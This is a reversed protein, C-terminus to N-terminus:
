KSSKIVENPAEVKQTQQTGNILETYNFSNKATIKPLKVNVKKNINKNNVEFKIDATYIGKLASQSTTKAFAKELKAADIVIEINGKTSIVYGNKDITYAIEIGKNGLIKINDLKDMNKNFADLFKQSQLKTFMQEMQIKTNNIDKTSAGSNKMSTVVYNKILGQIEKNKATINVVKRIVEKFKADDIKVKYVNGDKTVVGKLNLQSSYKQTITLILKQLEKNGSMMKKFDISGNEGQPFDMIMYKNINKSQSIMKFLQPSKVIEKAVVNKGKVNMDSWVEANYPTGGVNAITKIYQKATKGDKSGDIKANFVVQLNNLLKSVQTFQQQESKSLGEGNLELSLKGNSESSTAMSTKVLADSLTKAQLTQASVASTPLIFALMSITVIFSYVRSKLKTM